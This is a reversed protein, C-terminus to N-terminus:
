IGQIITMVSDPFLNSLIHIVFKVMFGFCNRCVKQGMRPKHKVFQNVYSFIVGPGDCNYLLEHMLIYM